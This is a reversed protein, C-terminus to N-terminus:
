PARWREVTNSRTGFVIYPGETGRESYYWYTNIRTAKIDRPEDLATLVEDPTMGTRIQAWGVTYGSPASAAGSEGPRTAASHCGASTLTLAGAAFFVWRLGAM